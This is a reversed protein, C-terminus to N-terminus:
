KQRRERTVEDIARDFMEAAAKLPMFPNPFTEALMTLADIVGQQVPYPPLEGRLASKVTEIGRDFAAAPVVASKRRCGSCQRQSVSGSRALWQHGCHLCRYEDM